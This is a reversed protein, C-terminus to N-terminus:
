FGKKIINRIRAKISSAEDRMAIEFIQKTENKYEPYQISIEYFGHYAWARVFKNSNTLCKRLFEEVEKKETKAIKMFQICQLIHLMSEWHELKSLLKFIAAIEDPETKRGDELCHKLLWTAGKQLAEQQSLNIIESIFTDDNSYRNYIVDIDNSSKGDWSIIAQEISTM